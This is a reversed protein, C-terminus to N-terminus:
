EDEELISMRTHNLTLMKKDGDDFDITLQMTNGREIIGEIKGIGFDEHNIRVGVCFRSNIDEADEEAEAKWGGDFMFKNIKMAPNQIAYVKAHKEYVNEVVYLWFSKGLEQAQSHQMRSISVGGEGWTDTTGKIEIFREIEGEKNISEIDYGPHTQPMDIPKRGRNIEYKHVWKRSKVEIALNKENNSKKGSPQNSESEVYTLLRKQHKEKHKKIEGSNQKPKNPVLPPNNNRKPLAESYEDQSSVSSSENDKYTNKSKSNKGKRTIESEGSGLDGLIPSSIDVNDDDFIIKNNDSYGLRDLHNGGDELSLNSIYSFLGCVLLIDSSPLLTHMLPVFIDINDSAIPRTIYLENKQQDFFSSVPKPESEIHFSSNTIAKVMLTDISVIRLKEIRRKFDRLFITSQDHLVRIYLDSREKIMDLIEIEVEEKGDKFDLELTTAESLKKTGLSSFLVQSKENLKALWEFGDEEFYSKYWESDDILVDSPYCLCSNVNLISQFTTLKNVVDKDEPTKEYLDNIQNICARYIKKDEPSELILTPFYEEKIDEVIDIYDKINPADKVGILDFLNKFQNLSNPINFVYKGLEQKTYFVQNPRVYGIEESIYICKKNKLKEFYYQNNQNKAKKNLEQYVVKHAPKDNNICYLLHEIIDDIEPELKIYLDELLASSLNKIDLFALIHAQSEFAQYNYPAYLDEPKYWQDNDGIIPLCESDILKGLLKTVGFQQDGYSDYIECLKYFANESLKKVDETPDYDSSLSCIRNVIHELRPDKSVGLSKIFIHVSNESPLIEEDIWLNPVDGLLSSLDKTKFYVEDPASWGGEMNPILSTDKLLDVIEKDDILSNHDAFIKILYKYTKIDNPGDEDFVKPLVVRVYEKITQHKVELKEIFFEETTPSLYLRNLLKAEGTPDDFDGPLLSENLTSFGIDTRWISFSKLKEYMEYDDKTTSSDLKSILSYMNRLDGQETPLFEKPDKDFEEIQNQIEDVVSDLELCYILKSIFEFGHLDDHAFKLFVFAKALEINTIPPTSIYLQKITRTKFNTDVIFPIDKLREIADESEHDLFGVNLLSNAISWIHKYFSNFKNDDISSDKAPLLDTNELISVLDKIKLDKVGLALLTNRYSILSKHALKGGIQHFATLEKNTWIAKGSFIDQTKEYEGQSSYCIKTGSMVKKSICDWFLSFCQPFDLGKGSNKSVKYASDLLNWLQIHGVKNRLLKLNESISNAATEILLENWYQKEQGGEFVLSKRSSEPFFDGNIHLPLGTPKQTPLFAYLLGNKFTLNDEVRIALSINDKRDARELESYRDFATKKKDAPITSSLILWQETKDEPEFSVILDRQDRDLKVLLASEGNSRVEAQQINKLFLLSHRLVAQCDKFVQKVHEDTVPSSHIAKRLDSESNAWPFFFETGDINDISTVKAKGKEPKLEVKLSNSVVVPSDTIQYTSVFGIGFRGINESSVQKSGSAFEILSHFNCRGEDFSCENNLDGCYNFVGSNWVRLGDDQIDFIINKAGADDANQLLELAMTDYGQLSQLHASINGLLSSTYNVEM